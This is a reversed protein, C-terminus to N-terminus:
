PVGRRGFGRFLRSGVLGLVIGVILSAAGVWLGTMLVARHLIPNDFVNGSVQLGSILWRDGEKVVHATWRSDLHFQRGDRLHFDQGVDGFALGNRDGYLITLEDVKAQAQVSDVIRNEGKMMKDYYARIGDHGRCIQGDQWTAVVNKHLNQLVADIDSKNFAEVVRDRLARLEQHAPDEKAAPKPEQGPLATPLLLALVIM